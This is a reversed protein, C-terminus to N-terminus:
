DTAAVDITAILLTLLETAKIKNKMQSRETFVLVGVEHDDSIAMVGPCEMAVHQGGRQDPHVAHCGTQYRFGNEEPATPKMM